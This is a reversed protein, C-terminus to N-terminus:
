GHLRSDDALKSAVQRDRYTTANFHSAGSGGRSGRVTKYFNQKVPLETNAIIGSRLRKSLRKHHFQPEFGMHIDIGVEVSVYKRWRKSACDFSLVM